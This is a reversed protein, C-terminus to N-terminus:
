STKGSACFWEYLLMVVIAARNCAIRYYVSKGDRRTAVMGDERLRALQQSLTPQRLCLTSELESVSM